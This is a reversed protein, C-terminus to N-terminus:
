PLKDMERQIRDESYRGTWFTARAHFFLGIGWGVIPFVPWFFDPPLEHGLGAVTIHPSVGAIVLVAWVVVLAANVTLYALLHVRFAAKKKSQKIAMERREDVPTMADRHPPPPATQRAAMAVELPRDPRQAEDDLRSASGSRRPHPAILWAARGGKDGADLSGNQGSWPGVDQFRPVLTGRRPCAPFVVL